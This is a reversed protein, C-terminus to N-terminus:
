ARGQGEGISTAALPAHGISYRILAYKDSDPRLPGATVLMPKLKMAEMTRCGHGQGTTVIGRVALKVPRRDEERLLAPGGRLPAGNRGVTRYERRQFSLQREGQQSTRRGARTGTSQRSSGPPPEIAQVRVAVLPNHARRERRAPKALGPPQPFLFRGM